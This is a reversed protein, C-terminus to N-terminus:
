MTHQPLPLSDLGVLADALADASLQGVTLQCDVSLQGVTLRSMPWQKKEYLVFHMSMPM